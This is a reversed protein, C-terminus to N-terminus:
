YSSLREVLFFEVFLLIKLDTVYSEKPPNAEVLLAFDVLSAIAGPRLPTTKASNRTDTLEKAGYTSRLFPRPAGHAEAGERVDSAAAQRDGRTGEGGTRRRWRMQLPRLSRVGFRLRKLVVAVRKM